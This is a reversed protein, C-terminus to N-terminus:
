DLSAPKCVTLQCRYWALVCAVLVCFVQPLSNPFRALEVVQEAVPNYYLVQLVLLNAFNGSRCMLQWLLPLPGCMSPVTDQQPPLLCSQQIREVFKTIQSSFSVASQCSRPVGLGHAHRYGLALQAFSSNGAAAFYYHLLARRM